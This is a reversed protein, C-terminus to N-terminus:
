EFGRFETSHLLRHVDLIMTLRGDGAHVGALYRAARGPIAGAPPRIAADPLERIDRVQEVVLGAEMNGDRCALLRSDRLQRGTSLGLFGALDVVSVIEGRLNAAGLLWAPVNPLPTVAPVRDVERVHVLPLAYIAGALDFALYRAGRVPSAEQRWFDPAPLMFVEDPSVPAPAVEPSRTFGGVPVNSM